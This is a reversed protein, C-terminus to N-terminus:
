NSFAGDDFATSYTAWDKAVHEACHEAAALIERRWPTQQGFDILQDAIASGDRGSSRLHSWALLEGMSTIVRELRRLRHNWAELAVRDETPQLGRLVYSAPEISVAQLFAMSVAQCRRQIAVVRQAENAWAPQPHTLHPRLASTQAAKLDLLHNGASGGQGEVLVVYREIGLSGTGAIRRAVDLMKFFPPKAQSAAFTQMFAAVKKRQQDSVPLAKKGDVRIRRKKGVLETRQDLYAPRQRQRLGDLLQGIMGKATEREIWRAKGAALATAYADIFADCLAQAEPRSVKLSNAAVLISSLLRLVEWSLPALAAEDFDNLDFYVQRNDGKYSGFNELHLDGCIWAPPAQTFLEGDPLRDYFLHCTGRLFVFPSSRMNRYKMALREPDRGANFAQINRVIDM